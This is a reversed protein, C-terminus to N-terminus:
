ETTSNHEVAVKAQFLIRIGGRHLLGRHIILVVYAQTSHPNVM